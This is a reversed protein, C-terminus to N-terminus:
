MVVDERGTSCKGFSPSCGISRLRADPPCQKASGNCAVAEFLYPWYEDLISTFIKGDAFSTTLNLVRLGHRRAIIESWEKLLHVFKQPGESAGIGDGEVDSQDMRVSDGLRRIERRLEDYDVATELGWSGLLIWLLTMTKERHGDVIEEASVAKVIQSVGRIARLAGLAIGVNYIRQARATCPYKLQKSLVFSRGRAPTAKSEGGTPMAILVDEELTIRQYLFIEILRTLRVGDRLDTAINIVNYSYDSVPHQFHHLRYNTPRLLRYIDGVSPHILATLEKLFILSSKITSSPQYLNASIIGIQKAKDLLYIMMMSRLVTRRWCRAPSKQETDQLDENRLFYSDLFAELLKRNPQITQAGECQHMSAPFLSDVLAEHGVVVEAAASLIGLTYSGAWLSIFKQRFGVDSKLFSVDESSHKPRSLCGYLISAELQNHLLSCEAGRYLTLLSRRLQGYCSIRGYRGNSMSEFLGNVCQAISAEQDDLWADDFMRSRGVDEHLIPYRQKTSSVVKRLTPPTLARTPPLQYPSYSNHSNPSAKRTSGHYLSAEMEMMVIPPERVVVSKESPQATRKLWGNSSKIKEYVATQERSSHSSESNPLTELCNAACRSAGELLSIGRVRLQSCERVKDCFKEAKLPANNEKGPRSGIQDACM